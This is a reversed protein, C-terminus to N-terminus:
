FRMRISGRYTRNSIDARGISTDVAISLELRGVDAALGGSLEVWDRDQGPLDFIANTGSPSGVFTAAFANRRNVFNHVFTATANPRIAGTGSLVLGARGEFSRYNKRTYALATSGGTEAGNSFDILSARAAVRPGIQVSQGFMTGVGVEGALALADGSSRLTITQGPLSADRLTSQSLAGATAQADVYFGRLQQKGYVNAAFLSGRAQQAGTRTNGDLKTYSLAFGAAGGHGVETELGGAVFFGDFTDRGAATLTGPLPASDGELYGASVFGSMTEPLRASGVEPQGALDSLSFMAPQAAGTGGLGLAAFQLPRGYYALRGGLDGPHLGQMRDRVLGINNDLATRGVAAGLAEARPALAELTAQITAANQLDLIGFIEPLNGGTGRSTDLLQAYARQVGSAQNIVTSYPNAAIQVQVANATYVFQPQLIASLASPALFGGSIGGEATLITYRDFARVARTPTFMVTGGLNASGNTPAGQANRSTAVVDFRDSVGGGALDIALGSGSSLVLNGGLTLTGVDGPTGPAIAGTVSTLFPADIRGSGFLGGGLLLYDGRSTLRGDVQVIGAAHTVDILSTLSGASTINLRAPQSLISFRDVTVATGLTTTGAAALTVDFYTGIAGSSRVPDVNNPVFNTAGPLGNALTAAPLAQASVGGGAEADPAV